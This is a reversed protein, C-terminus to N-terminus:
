CLGGFMHVSGVENQQVETGYQMEFKYYAAWADGFDPDLKVQVSVSSTHIHVVRHWLVARAHSVCCSEESLLANHYLDVGDPRSPQSSSSNPYSRTPVYVYADCDFRSYLLFMSHLM